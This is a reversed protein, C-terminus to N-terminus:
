TVEHSSRFGCLGQERGGWARLLVPLLLKQFFIIIFSVGEFPSSERYYFLRRTKRRVPGLGSGLVPISSVTDCLFLHSSPSDMRCISLSLGAGCLGHGSEAGVQGSWPEAKFWWGWGM